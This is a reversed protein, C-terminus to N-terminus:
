ENWPYGQRPARLWSETPPRLLDDAVQQWSRGRDQHDQVECLLDWAVRDFRRRVPHRTHRLIIGGGTTGGERDLERLVGTSVGLRSLVQAVLCCPEGKDLYRPALKRGVRSDVHEPAEAAVADLTSKVPAVAIGTM